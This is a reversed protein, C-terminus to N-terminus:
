VPEAFSLGAFMAGDVCRRPCRDGKSFVSVEFMCGQGRMAAVTIAININALINSLLHAM